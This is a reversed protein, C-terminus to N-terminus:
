CGANSMICSLHPLISTPLINLQKSANELRGGDFFNKVNDFMRGRRLKLCNRLFLRLSDILTIRANFM